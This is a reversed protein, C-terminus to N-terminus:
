FTQAFDVKAMFRAKYLGSREKDAELKLKPIQFCSFFFVSVENCWKDILFEWIINEKDFIIFLYFYFLGKKDQVGKSM